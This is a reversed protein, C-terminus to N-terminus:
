QRNSDSRSGGDKMKDIAQEVYSKIDEACKIYIHLDQGYPDAIDIYMDNNKVYEKLTYVKKKFTPYMLIVQRKHEKTMTLIVDADEVDALSIQKAKHNSLKLSYKELVKVANGTANESENAYLGRSFTGGEVNKSEMYARAIYEAMPSRCTNGTCVFLIKM